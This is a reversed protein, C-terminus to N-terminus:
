KQDALMSFALVFSALFGGSLLITAILPADQMYVVALVLSLPVFGLVRNLPKVNLAGLGMFLFFFLAGLLLISVLFPQTTIQELM